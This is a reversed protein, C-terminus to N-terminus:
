SLFRLSAVELGMKVRRQEEIKWERVSVGLSNRGGDEM